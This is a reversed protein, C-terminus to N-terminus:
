FEKKKFVDQSIEGRERCFFAHRRVRFLVSVYFSCVARSIHATASLIHRSTKYTCACIPYFTIGEEAFMQNAIQLAESSIDVGVVSAAGWDKMLKSGYGEGCAIDLVHKGTVFQKATLYRDLHIAAEATNYKTEAM